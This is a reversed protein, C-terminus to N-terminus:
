ERDKNREDRIEQLIKKAGHIHDPDVLDELKKVPILNYIGHASFRHLGMTSAYLTM